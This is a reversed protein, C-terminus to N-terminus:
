LSEQLLLLRSGEERKWDAAKWRWRGNFCQVMYKGEPDKGVYM